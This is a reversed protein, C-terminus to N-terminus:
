RPNARTRSRHRIAMKGNRHRWTGARPHATRRARYATGAAGNASRGRAGTVAWCTGTSDMAPAGLRPAPESEPSLAQGAMASRRGGGVAGGGGGGVGGGGGGGGVRGGGVGGRSGVGGEGGGRGRAERRRGR